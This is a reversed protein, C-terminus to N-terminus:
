TLAVYRNTATMYTDDGIEHAFALDFQRNSLYSENNHKKKLRVFFSMMRLSTERRLTDYTEPSLQITLNSREVGFTDCREISKLFVRVHEDVLLKFADKNFLCTCKAENEIKNLEFRSFSTNIDRPSLTKTTQSEKKTLIVQLITPKIIGFLCQNLLNCRISIILFYDCPSFTVRSLMLGVNEDTIVGLM